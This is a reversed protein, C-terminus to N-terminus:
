LLFCIKIMIKADMPRAHISM